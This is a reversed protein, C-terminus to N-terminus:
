RNEVIVLKLANFDECLAELKTRCPLSLADPEQVSAELRWRTSPEATGTRNGLPFIRICGVFDQPEDACWLAFLAFPPLPGCWERDVLNADSALQAVRLRHEVSLKV